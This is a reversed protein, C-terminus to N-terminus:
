IKVFKGFTCNAASINHANSATPKVLYFFYTSIGDTRWVHYSKGVNLQIESGTPGASANLLQVSMPATLVSM